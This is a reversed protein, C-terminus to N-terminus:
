KGRNLDLERKECDRALDVYSKLLDDYESRDARAQAEMQSRLSSRAAAEDATIYHAGYGVGTLGTVGFAAVLWWRAPGRVFQRQPDTM